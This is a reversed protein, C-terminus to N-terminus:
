KKKLIALFSEPYEGVIEFLGSELVQKYWANLNAIHTEPIVDHLCLYSGTKLKPLVLNYTIKMSLPFDLDILCYDLHPIFNINTTEDILGKILKVNTLNQQNLQDQQYEITLENNDYLTYWIDMCTAAFSNRDHNCDPDKEAIEKPHQNFTDFGYITGKDKWIKGIAEVGGGYAIGFEAGILPNTSTEALQKAINLLHTSAGNTDNLNRM